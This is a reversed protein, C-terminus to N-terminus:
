RRGAAPPNYREAVVMSTTGGSVLVTGDCLLTAQHHSREISLSDTPLIDVSGDIPDLNAIFASSVAPGGLTRSGGTLLVRGDPLTTATFDVLGATTPLEAACIGTTPGATPCLEGSPCSDGTKCTPGILHFGSDLTFLELLSVPTGTADIGGMILASGDPMRVTQHHSRPIVMQPAMNPAFTSFSESLPKFLEATGVPAGTGDIGGAVLVPAGVDDGLRTATHQSRPIALTAHLIRVAAQDNTVTIEDVAGSPMAMGPAMGGIAIVRGDSLTTATLGVRSMNTDSLIDVRADLPNDADILEVFNAGAGSGDVGGVIAIRQETGTGIAAIVADTRAKVDALRRLEGTRPDLREVEVIPSGDIPSIGGILLGSGDHYVIAGGDERLEPQQLPPYLLQAFRVSRSFLLHPAPPASGQDYPFSCTRGYAVDQPGVRGTLHIVLDDGFRAGTLEVAQGHMFSASALDVDSGEHAVSVTLVDLPFASASDNTPLDIVPELVPADAACGALALISLAPLKM